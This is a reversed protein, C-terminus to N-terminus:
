DDSLVELPNAMRFPYHYGNLRNIISIKREKNINALQKFNWSLLVDMEFVTSYAVHFADAIKRRPIIGNDIYSKVLSTIEEANRDKAVLTKINSYKKFIKLLENRKKLDKTNNIEEFVVRSVYADVKNTAIVTEFFYETDSRYDPSDEALLFNIVSTDLYIKLKKM